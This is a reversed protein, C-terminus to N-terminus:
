EFRRAVTRQLVALVADLEIGVGREFDIVRSLGIGIDQHVVFLDFVVAAGVVCEPRGRHFPTVEPVRVQAIEQIQLAGESGLVHPAPVM